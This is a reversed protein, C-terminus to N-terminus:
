VAVAKIILAAAAGLAADPAAGLAALHPRM